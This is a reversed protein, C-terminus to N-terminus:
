GSEWLPTSVWRPATAMRCVDTLLHRYPFHRSAHLRLHRATKRVMAACKVLTLRLRGVTARKLEHREPLGMRLAAYLNHAMAVLHLKFGNDDMDSCSMKEGRLDNKFEEIRQEEQGRHAYATYVRKPGKRMNTVVPYAEETETEPDYMWKVVVRRATDWTKARYKTEFYCILKGNRREDPERDELIMSAIEQELLERLVANWRLRVVYEVGWSECAEYLKPSAFGSDARVRIRVGPWAARLRAM